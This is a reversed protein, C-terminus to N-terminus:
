KDVELEAEALQFAEWDSAAFEEGLSASEEQVDPDNAMELFAADIAAEEREVLERRIAAALFENRSRAEGTEIMQDMRTLLEAPLTVTTRVTRPRVM